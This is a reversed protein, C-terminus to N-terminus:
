TWGPSGYRRPTWNVSACPVGQETFVEGLEASHVGFVAFIGNKEACEGVVATGAYDHFFEFRAVAVDELRINGIAAVLTLFM